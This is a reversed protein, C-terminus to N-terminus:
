SASSWMAVPALLIPRLHLKCGLVDFIVSASDFGLQHVFLAECSVPLACLLFLCFSRKRFVLSSQAPVLFSRCPRASHSDIGLNLWPAPSM